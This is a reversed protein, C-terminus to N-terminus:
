KYKSVLSKVQQYSDEDIVAQISVDEAQCSEILEEVFEPTMLTSDVINSLVWNDSLEKIYELRSMNGLIMDVKISGARVNVLTITVEAVESLTQSLLFLLVESSLKKFLWRAASERVQDTDPITNPTISM